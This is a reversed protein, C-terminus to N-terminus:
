VIPPSVLWLVEAKGPSVRELSHDVHSSYHIYSGAGLEHSEGNVEMHVQGSRVFAFREGLYRNLKPPQADHTALLASFAGDGGRGSLVIYDTAGDMGLRLQRPDGARSVRVRPSDEPPFYATIDAGLAAAVTSLASLSPVTTGNELQSLYGTSLGTEAAVQTLTMGRARRLERMRSGVQQVSRDAASRKASSM